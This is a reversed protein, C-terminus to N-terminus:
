QHARVICPGPGLLIDLRLVGYFREAIEPLGLDEIVSFGEGRLLQLMEIPDFFSLWTEGRLAVREATAM